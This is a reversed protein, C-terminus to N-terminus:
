PGFCEELFGVSGPNQPETDFVQGGVVALMHRMADYQNEYTKDRAATRAEEAMDESVENQDDWDALVYRQWPSGQLPRAWFADYDGRPLLTVDAGARTLADLLAQPVPGTAPSKVVFARLRRGTRAASTAARVLGDRYRDIRGDDVSILRAVGTANNGVAKDAAEGGRSYGAIWLLPDVRLPEAPGGRFALPTIGRLSLPQGRGGLAGSSWLLALAQTIHGALGARMANDYAGDIGRAAPWPLFLVRQESDDAERLRAASRALQHELAVPLGRMRESPRGPTRGDEKLRRLHDLLLTDYPTYYKIRPAQKRNRGQLLYHALHDMGALGHLPDTLGKESGSAYPYASNVPRFFVAGGIRTHAPLPAMATPPLAAFWLLPVGWTSALVRLRTPEGACEPDLYWSNFQWQSFAPDSRPLNGRLTPRHHLDWWLGTIDVFDAAVRLSAPRPGATLLPHPGTFVQAPGGEPVVVPKRGPVVDQGANTPQLGVVTRGVAHGDYVPAGQGTLRLLQVVELGVPGTLRGASPTVRVELRMPTGAPVEFVAGTPTRSVPPVSRGTGSAWWEPFPPDLHIQAVTDKLLFHPQDAWSLHLRM